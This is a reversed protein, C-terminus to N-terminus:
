LVNIMAARLNTYNKAFIHHMYVNLELEVRYTGNLKIVTARKHREDKMAQTEALSSSLFPGIIPMSRPVVYEHTPIKLFPFTLMM